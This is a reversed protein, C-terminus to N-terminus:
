ANKARDARTESSPAAGCGDRHGTTQVRLATAAPQPVRSANGAGAM